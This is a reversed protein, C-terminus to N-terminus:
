LDFLKKWHHWMEQSTAASWHLHDRETTFRDPPLQAIARQTHAFAENIRILNAITALPLRPSWNLKAIWIRANPFTDDAAEMLNQVEQGFDPRNHQERNNLGISLIVAKTGPSAPTKHKLLHLIHHIKAGPYCDVQVESHHILPLRGMNSDGIILYPRRPQLTWNATKNGRHEHRSFAAAELPSTGSPGARQSSGMPSRTHDTKSRTTKTPTKKPSQIKRKKAPSIAQNPTSTSAPRHSGTHPLAPILSTTRRKTPTTPKHSTSTGSQKKSHPSNRKKPFLNIKKTPTKPETNTDHTQPTEETTSTITPTEGKINIKIRPVQPPTQQSPPIADSPPSPPSNPTTELTSTQSRPPTDPLPSLPRMEQQTPKKLPAIEESAWNLASDNYKTGYRNKMWRTAVRWAADWDAQDALLISPVLGEIVRRYHTETAEISGRAWTRANAEFLSQTTPTNEAVRNARSLQKATQAVSPPFETGEQPHHINWLHYHARQYRYFLDLLTRFTSNAKHPSAM